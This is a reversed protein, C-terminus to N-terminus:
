RHAAASGMLCALMLMWFPQKDYDTFGGLAGYVFIGGVFSFFLGVMWLCGPTERVIIENVDESLRM